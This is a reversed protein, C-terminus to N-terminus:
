AVVQHESAHVDLVLLTAASGDSARVEVESAHARVPPECHDIAAQRLADAQNPSVKSSERASV